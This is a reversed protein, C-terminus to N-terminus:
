KSVRRLLRSTKIASNAASAYTPDLELGLISRAGLKDAARLASASGATPDFVDTTNDVLMSFFHEIMTESKQSPHIPQSPTPAAYVNSTARVLTRNGRSALFATEYVHRPQQNGAPIIGANDSKFWILPKPQVRFGATELAAKTPSYFDMSFWFVLHCFYSAFKEINTCFAALLTNYDEEKSSYEVNASTLSKAYSDFQKGYPFDCHILNFKPGTYTQVWDLFNACIVLDSDDMTGNPLSDDLSTGVQNQSDSARSPSPSPLDVSRDAQSGPNDLDVMFDMPQDQANNPQTQDVRIPTSIAAPKFAEQGVDSIDGILQAAHRNALNELISYAHKASSADKIVPNSLNKNIYILRKLHAASIGCCEASQDITWGSPHLSKYSDHLECYGSVVQRWGLDTRRVNEELEIARAEIPTLSDVTKVEVKRDLKICARLRTEGVVLQYDVTQSNDDIITQVVIPHIQGRLRISTAMRDIEEDSPTGRHRNPPITISSSDLFM